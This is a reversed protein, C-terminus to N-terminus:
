WADAVDDEALYGFPVGEDNSGWRSLGLEIHDSCDSLINSSGGESRVVHPLEENVGDLCHGARGDSEGKQRARGRGESDVADVDRLLINQLRLGVEGVMVRMRQSVFGSMPESTLEASRRNIEFQRSIKQAVATSCVKSPPHSAGFVRVPPSM